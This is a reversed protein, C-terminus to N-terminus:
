DHPIVLPAQGRARLREASASRLGGWEAALLGLGVVDHFRGGKLVHERLLAERRFGFSEYLGIARTNEALAECWLKNLGLRSFVHEIVAYQVSAGVGKGRVAPDALYFGWECRRNTRDIEAIHAVGVGIGDLEIIWQRRDDARLTAKLWAFHEELRIARDTYMWRAVESANRWALVQAGDHEGLPRLTVTV